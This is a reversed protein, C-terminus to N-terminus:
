HQAYVVNIRSVEIHQFWSTNLKIYDKSTGFMPRHRGELIFSDEGERILTKVTGDVTVELKQGTSMGIGISLLQFIRAVQSNKNAVQAPIPLMESFKM